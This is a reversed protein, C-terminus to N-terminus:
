SVVRRYAGSKILLFIGARFLFFYTFVYLWIPNMKLFFGAIFVSLLGSGYYIARFTDLPGIIAQWNLLEYKPKVSHEITRLVPFSFLLIIYPEFGFEFGLIFYVPFWYKLVCLVFYTLVNYRSRIRNHFQFAISVLALYIGCYVMKTWEMLNTVMIVGVIAGLLGFRILMISPLNKRIFSVDNQSIRRNPYKEYDVTISDNIMYGVEYPLMWMVLLLIFLIGQESISQGYFGFLYVALALPYIYILSYVEAKIRLRSFYLYNFPAIFRFM